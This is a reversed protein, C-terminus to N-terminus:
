ALFRVYPQDDPTSVGWAKWTGPAGALTCVWGIKGGASPATSLVFDGVAWTGGAPAASGWVVRRGGSFMEPGDYLSSTAPPTPM